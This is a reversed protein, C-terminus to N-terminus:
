MLLTQSAGRYPYIFAKTIHVVFVRFGCRNPSMTHSVQGLCESRERVRAGIQASTSVTRHCVSVLFHGLLSSQYGSM